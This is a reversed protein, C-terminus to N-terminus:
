HLLGAWGGPQRPILGEAIPSRPRSHPCRESLM